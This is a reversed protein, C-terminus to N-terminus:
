IIKQIKKKLQNWYMLLDKSLQLVNELNQVLLKPNDPYEHSISNRAKRYEFWHYADNIYGLKELLNLRDVFSMLKIDEGIVQLILPFIKEGIADQLKAFRGTLLELIGLEHPTLINIKELSLPLFGEMENFAIKIRDAHIACSECQHKLLQKLHQNM